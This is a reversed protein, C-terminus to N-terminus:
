DMTLNDYCDNCIPITNYHMDGYIDGIAVNNCYGCKPRYIKSYDDRYINLRGEYKNKPAVLTIIEVLSHLVEDIRRGADIIFDCEDKFQYICELDKLRNEIDSLSNGRNKMRERIIDKDDINLFITVVNEEGLYEKMKKAGEIEMVSVVNHTDITFDVIKKETGYYNGFINVYELFIDKNIYEEFLKKDYFFYDVTDEENKRPNRSTSTIIKEIKGVCKQLLSTTTKINNLVEDLEDKKVIECIEKYNTKGVIINALCTKGAASPGVLIIMKNRM